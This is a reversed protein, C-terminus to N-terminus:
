GRALRSGAAADAQELGRQMLRYRIGDPLRSVIRIMRADSGVQYRTHPRRATLAHVVAKAVEDPSIGGPARAVNMLSRILAGYLETAEPPLRDTEAEAEALSKAWIPTNIVGPEVASVHIGWPELELRLCDTLAEVAYKSACYPAMGPFAILGAQSSMLVIRGRARRLAPLFAQTVAVIGIVNVELQSRFDAVPIFEMPGAVAIGANNVLGHLGAAGVAEEVLRRAEAISEADTVDLRVPVLRQSAKAQLAEGDAPKRVGAFVRFGLRDLRLACAEGIGSSAGTIVVSLPNTSM